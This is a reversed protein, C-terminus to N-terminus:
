RARDADMLGQRIYVHRYVVSASCSWSDLQMRAHTRTAKDDAVMTRTAIVRGARGGNPRHPVHPRRAPNCPAFAKTDTPYQSIGTDLYKLHNRGPVQYWPVLQYKTGLVVQYRTGCRTGSVRTNLQYWPRIGLYWAHYGFSLAFSPMEAESSASLRQAGDAAAAAARVPCSWLSVARPPAVGPGCRRSARTPAGGAQPPPAM